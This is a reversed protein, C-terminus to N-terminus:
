RTIVDENWIKGIIFVNMYKSKLFSYFIDKNGKNRYYGSLLDIIGPMPELLRKIEYKTKYICNFEIKLYYFFAKFLIEAWERAQNKNINLFSFLFCINDKEFDIVIIEETNETLGRFIDVNLKGVQLFEIKDNYFEGWVNMINETANSIVDFFSYFNNEKM